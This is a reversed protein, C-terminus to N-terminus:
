LVTENRHDGSCFFSIPPFSALEAAMRRCQRRKREAIQRGFKLAPRLKLIERQFAQKRGDKNGGRGREGLIVWRWELNVGDVWVM